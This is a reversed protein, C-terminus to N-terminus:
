GILPDPQTRQVIATRLPTSTWKIKTRAVAIANEARISLVRTLDGLNKLFLGYSQGKPANEYIGSPRESFNWRRGDRSFVSWECRHFGTRDQMANQFRDM